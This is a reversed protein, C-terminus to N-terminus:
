SVTEKLGMVEDRNPGFIKRLVRSEFGKLRLEEKL